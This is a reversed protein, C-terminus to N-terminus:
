KPWELLGSETLEKTESDEEYLQAYLEASKKLEQLELEKILRDIALRIVASKDKFGYEKYRKLFEIQNEKLSFKTQIM